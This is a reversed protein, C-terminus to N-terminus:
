PISIYVEFIVLTRRKHLKEYKGVTIGRM